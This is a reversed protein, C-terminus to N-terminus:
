LSRCSEITYCSCIVRRQTCWRGRQCRTSPTCPSPRRPAICACRRSANLLHLPGALNVVRDRLQVTCQSTYAHPLPMLSPRALLTKTFILRALEVGRSLREAFRRRQASSCNRTQKDALVWLLRLFKTHIQGAVSVIVVAFATGVAACDEKYRRNKVEARAQLYDDTHM